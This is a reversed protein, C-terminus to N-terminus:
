AVPMTPRFAGFDGEGVTLIACLSGAASPPTTSDEPSRRLSRLTAPLLNRITAALLDADTTSLAAVQPQQM